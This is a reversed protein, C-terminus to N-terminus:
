RHAADYWHHPISWDWHQAPTNAGVWEAHCRPSGGVSAGYLLLGGVLYRWLTSIRARM